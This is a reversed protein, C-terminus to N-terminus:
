EEDRPPTYIDKEANWHNGWQGTLNDKIKSCNPSFTIKVRGTSDAKLSSICKYDNKEKGIVSWINKADVCDLDDFDKFKGPSACSTDSLFKMKTLGNVSAISVLEVIKNIENNNQGSHYAKISAISIVGMLALVLVMEVISRGSEKNM